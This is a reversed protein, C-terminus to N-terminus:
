QARLFVNGILSSHGWPVQKEATAAMVELRVQKMMLEVELGPVVMYKLLATTFPSNDGSGDATINGPQTAFAVFTNEGVEVQALGDMMSAGKGVPNNRCADLFMFTQRERNSFRAIVDNLRVAGVTLRELTEPDPTDVPLLYNAGDLQIAHGSAEGHDIRLRPFDERQEHSRM